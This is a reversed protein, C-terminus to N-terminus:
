VEHPTGAMGLAPRQKGGEMAQKYVVMIRTYYKVETYNQRADREATEGLRLCRAPDNWLATMHHALSEADGTTFLEGDIGPRILEPLAGSNAGLVPRGHLMAEGVVLGFPELFSPVVLFRAGAYFSELEGGELQGMWTINRPARARFEEPVPGGAIKIPVECRRAAELLTEIGKEPTIRGVFAVYNGLERPAPAVPRILNSVVHFRDLPIGKEKAITDRMFKSPAIFRAIHRTHLGFANAVGARLAFAASEARNARCNKIACWATNGGACRVCTKSQHLHTAVPCTLRFDHCTMVVPVGARAFARIIWPSHHPYVEHIHVLDPPDTALCERVEALAAPSYVGTLAAALKGKVGGYANSNHAMLRVDHGAERLVQVTARAMFDSGGGNRHWNVVQLIRM